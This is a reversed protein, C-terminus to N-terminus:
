VNYEHCHAASAYNFMWSAASAAAVSECPAFNIQSQTCIPRQQQTHVLKRRFCIFGMLNTHSGRVKAFVGGRTANAVSARTVSRLTPIEILITDCKVCVCVWVVLVQLNFHALAFEIYAYWPRRVPLSVCTRASLILTSVPPASVGPLATMFKHSRKGYIQGPTGPLEEEGEFPRVHTSWRTYKLNTKNSYDRCWNPLLSM